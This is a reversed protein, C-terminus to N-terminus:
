WVSEFYWLRMEVVVIVSCVRFQKEFGNQDTDQDTQKLSEVYARLDQSFVETKGSLLAELVADHVFVYQDQVAVRFTRHVSGWSM